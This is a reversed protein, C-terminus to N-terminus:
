SSSELEIDKVVFIRTITEKIQANIAAEEASTRGVKSRHHPITHLLEIATPDGGVALCQLMELPTREEVGAMYPFSKIFDEIHM